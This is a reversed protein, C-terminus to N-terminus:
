EVRHADWPVSVLKEERRTTQISGTIRDGELKGAYTVTLKRRRIKRDVQFAVQDDAFTAASIAVKGARNDISGSLRNGDWQLALTSDVSRGNPGEAKFKWTGTPDGAFATLSCLGAFLTLLRLSIM